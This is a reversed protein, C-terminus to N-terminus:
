LWLHQEIRVGARELCPAADGPAANVVVHAGGHVLHLTALLADDVGTKGGHAAVVQEVGVKAINGRAPFFAHGLLVHLVAPSADPNLGAGPAKARENLEVGPQAFSAARHPRCRAGM